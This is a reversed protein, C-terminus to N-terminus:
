KTAPETAASPSTPQPASEALSKLNNLGQEYDKGLANNIFLGMFKGMVSTAMGTNSVDGDYTWTVKTGGAAPELNIEGTYTGDFAAFQMGVKVHKDPTSEIIWQSGNGLKESVWSMKAGVGSEPGEYNVKLNPDTMGWPQWKNTNKITNVQEFVTSAAANIVSSRELHSKPSLFASVIGILAVLAVLSIGLVKLARTMM